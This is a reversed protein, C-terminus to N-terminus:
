LGEACARSLGVAEVREQLAFRSDGPFVVFLRDLALDTLASLMSRTLRPASTRKFEIGIRRGGKFVLLDLEAGQHTAWYFCRDWDVGLIRVTEQMAFGEWSAGAKPHGLLATGSDLALLAHLLGTDAVYVRPAKVQRKKLNEYWPALRRVVLADVLTDLYTDITPGSVGLARGVEASKWHSGHYHAVMTWFRRMTAAPVSVGLQPLDRELFTRIFANRWRVSGADDAALFSSPLGGRVWLRELADVGTEDVRFPTLEHYAIRGALTESSQRLLDPGASGLVLFRTTNGPRDVLVRLLEFLRELRQVEDIVVLGRLSELALKPDSLRAEDTPDELDFSTVPQASAEVVSRALTTKGVQRAGILGVVPFQRLLDRIAAAHGTRPIVSTM